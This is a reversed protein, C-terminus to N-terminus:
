RLAWSGAGLEWVKPKKKRKCEKAAQEDVHLQPASQARLFLVTSTRMAAGPGYQM